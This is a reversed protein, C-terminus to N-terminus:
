YYILDFSIRYSKSPNGTLQFRLLMNLTILLKTDVVFQLVRKLRTNCHNSETLIQEKSNNILWNITLFLIGTRM